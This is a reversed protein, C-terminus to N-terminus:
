KRKAIWPILDFQLHYIQEPESKLVAKEVEKLFDVFLGQIHLKTDETM